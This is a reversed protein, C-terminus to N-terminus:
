GVRREESRDLSTASNCAYGWPDCALGNSILATGNSCGLKILFDYNHFFSLFCVEIIHLPCERHSEICCDKCVFHCGFCDRCRFSPACPTREPPCLPCHDTPFDARGEHRLLETLYEDRVNMWAKLPM